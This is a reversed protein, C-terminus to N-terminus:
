DLGGYTIQGTECARKLATAGAEGRATSYNGDNDFGGIAHNLDLFQRASIAGSKLAALGYQVGVNDWPRAGAGTTGNRGFVNVQEVSHRPKRVRQQLPLNPHLSVVCDKLRSKHRIQARRPTILVFHKGTVCCCYPCDRANRGIGLQDHVAFGTSLKRPLM